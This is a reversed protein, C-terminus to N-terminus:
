RPDSEELTICAMEKGLQLVCTVRLIFDTFRWLFDWYLLCPLRFTVCNILCYSRKDHGVALVPAM